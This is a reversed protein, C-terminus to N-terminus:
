WLSTLYPLAFFEEQEEEDTDDEVRAFYGIWTRKSKFLGLCVRLQRRRLHPWGIYIKTGRCWKKKNYVFFREEM